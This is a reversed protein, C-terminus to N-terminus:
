VKHLPWIGVKVPGGAHLLPEGAPTPLRNAELMSSDCNSLSAQQVRWPEHHIRASYLRGQHSTYLCYREILFFDLSGPQASPRAEGITWRANFQAKRSSGKRRSSYLISNRQQELSINATFYPLHFFTRAGIVPLLRNADLSFFWVGPIGELHVYTRVNIEHFYSIRPLSLMFRPRAHRITFPTVGIWAKGDFTDITLRKPIHNRLAEVSIQWHLFLLKDWTQYM